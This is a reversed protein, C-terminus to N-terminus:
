LKVPDHAAARRQELFDAVDEGPEILAIFWDPFNDKAGPREQAAQDLIARVEAELSRGKRRARQALRAKTAPSLNRVTLSTGQAVVHHNCAIVVRDVRHNCAIV